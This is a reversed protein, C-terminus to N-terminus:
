LIKVIFNGPSIYIASFFSTVGHAACFFVPPKEFGGAKLACGAAAV